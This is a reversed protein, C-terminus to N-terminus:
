YNQRKYHFIKEVGKLLTVHHWIPESLYYLIRYKLINFVNDHCKRQLKSGGILVDGYIM